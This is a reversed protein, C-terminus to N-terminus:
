PPQGDVAAVKLPQARTSTRARADAIQDFVSWSCVRADTRARTHTRILGTVWQSGQLLTHMHKNMLTTHSWTHVNAGQDRRPLTDTLM